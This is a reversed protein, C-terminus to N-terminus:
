DKLKLTTIRGEKELEVQTPFVRVVRMGRVLQGEEVVRNDILAMPKGGGTIIGSLSLNRDALFPLGASSGSLPVGSTPPLLHARLPLGKAPHAIVALGALVAVTGVALLVRYPWLSPPTPGAPSSSQSHEAKRLADAILSM